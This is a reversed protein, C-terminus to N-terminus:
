MHSSPSLSIALGPFVCSCNKAPVTNSKYMPPWFISECDYSNKTYAQCIYWASDYVFDWTIELPTLVVTDLLKMGEM